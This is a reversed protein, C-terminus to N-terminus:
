LLHCRPERNVFSCNLNRRRLYGNLVLTVRKRTPIACPASPPSFNGAHAMGDSLLPDVREEAVRSLADV